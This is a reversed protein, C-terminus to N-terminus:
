SGHVVFTGSRSSVWADAEPLYARYLGRGRQVPLHVTYRGSSRVPGSAVARWRSGGTLRQIVVEGGEYVNWARGTVKITEGAPVRARHARATVMSGHRLPVYEAAIDQARNLVDTAESRLSVVNSVEVVRTDSDEYVVNPITVGYWGDEDTAVACPLTRRCTGDYRVQLTLKEDYARGTDSDVVRGSIRYSSVGRDLPQPRAKVTLRPQHSGHVTLTPGPHATAQTMAANDDHTRRPLASVVTLRGDATSPVNLVGTWVGPGSTGASRRVPVAYTGLLGDGHHGRHTFVVTADAGAPGVYAAHLTVEVPVTDLGSVEVESRDLTVTQVVFTENLFAMGPGSPDHRRTPVAPAQALHHAAGSAEASRPAAALPQAHAVPPLGIIAVAMAAVLTVEGRRRRM